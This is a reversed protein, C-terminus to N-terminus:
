GDQAAHVAQDRAPLALLYGLAGLAAVAAIGGIGAISLGLRDAAYAGLLAVALGVSPALAAVARPTAGPLGWAAWGGGLAVLLLLGVASRVVLPVAELGRPLEPLDVRGVSPGAVQVLGPAVVRGAARAEAFSPEAFTGIVLVAGRDLVTRAEELYRESLRDYEVDAQRTPTGALVDSARGVVLRTDEIREAPLAMRIVNGFRTIHFASAQETTDVVFVLPTGSPLTEVARGAAEAARLEEPQVFPRHRYWGWLSGVLLVAAATGALAAAVRGRRAAAAVGIGATVPLFFAFSLLRSAPGAGTVFLVVTGVATVAAWAVAVLAVYRHKRWPRFPRWAVSLVAGAALPAAMRRLDAAFRERFRSGLLGRLEPGARRFFQDQSTDAPPGPTLLVPIMAAMGLVTGGLTGAAVRAAATDLPRGGSRISRLAEPALGLVVLGLIAAGIAAFVWHALGGAALLVAALGVPRWSRGGLGLAAVAALFMAALALNALWGPALFAAFAGTLLAVLATRTPAPGLLAEVQAGAALGASTALLPGLLAVTQVAPTGLIAGLVAAGAPVGPRRVVDLGAVEVLRTWWTYVPADPGIPLGFGKWIPHILYAVLILGGLGLAFGLAAVWGRM